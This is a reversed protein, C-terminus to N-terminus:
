PHQEVAIVLTSSNGTAAVGLLNTAVGPLSAPVFSVTGDLASNGVSTQTSLLQAQVCRGRASCPPTGAYLSQFLTVTGGAMPNGNMDLVRLTVLAPTASASLSQPTGAIPQLGAYEPRAGFATYTVCQSTGNLCAKATAQQGESLPGITLTKAAVGSSNTLVPNGNAATIGPGTQWTVSQGALPVGGNLTLAQATWAVTAGAALSLTPNLSSLVPPTGGSFHAQLSSGNSLSATVVSLSNDVATVNLTASGDGSATLHCSPKGCDLIASGQSVTYTISVGGARDLSPGLATVTFPLPVGIPVTNAPATVLTLADGAGSDYSIAGSAIAIAYYAPTDDVEVDVSGTVGSQTPPAIATIENPSVSTVQAPQGGVLVTDVVHFGMGRIAIPGGSPPLREPEVRDIYLVWGNYAYDPRGDGRQDGIGLRVMDDGSTAVQLWSEGTSNGNLGPAAGVPSTGPAAFADWIGLIPMAKFNSPRGNEDLAETVVTFTRNGRVPFNFWDTQGVQSLRGCWLGSPPLMRPASETSIADWFGSVAASDAANVSVTQASGSAFGPLNISALTGSPLPSGDVYPGVTNQQTFLPNISEFTLQYTASTM